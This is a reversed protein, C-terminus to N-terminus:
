DTGAEEWAPYPDDLLAWAARGAAVEDDTLCAADLAACLAHGDLDLGLFALDQGGALLEDDAGLDADTALPQFSLMRGVHEWHAVTGPRTALRCFGASRLVTGFDGSEIRGDLLAALRAPHFPRLAEYRLASVRPDTMHPAHDDNLVAIWGPREQAATYEASQEPAPFPSPHLRLRARPSLSSLIALTRSLDPTTLADWGVLVITSAYEIHTVAALACARYTRGGGPARHAFYDDRGLDDLLHPADVVCTIGILRAPSSPHAFEGIVETVPTGTPFEVVAGSATEAWPALALAEDVPDLAMALRAAPFLTRATGAALDAAYRHREPPCTGVVALVDTQPM